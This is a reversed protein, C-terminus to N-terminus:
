LPEDHDSAAALKGALPSRAAGVQNGKEALRKWEKKASASFVGAKMYFQAFIGLVLLLCGAYKIPRGPDVAVQLVSQFQGTRQGTQPDQQPSYRMQYFTYGRHSLPHNMSITCPQAKIDESADSLGVNSVFKTAQETGPEFGVEFKDLKIEFGLPMRDVDYAIEFLRDGFPVPKFSPGDPSESRQIWIERTVDGVTMELLSAPVAEDMQNKPLYAPEFIQKEVGSPIYDEVRFSITMPMGVGGGFADITQGRSVPGAGRLETKSDKGRGFVRYYLSRDPAALVEIQGFRGNSRPDLVPPVMFHISVLPVPPTAGPDRSNPMVNPVMPLWAMAFHQIEPGSGKRVQFMGVPIVTEGLFRSLGGEAAPFDALKEVKVTLDSEPLPVSKGEQGELALDFVRTVGARDPYRIRALGRPGANMPPKLFDDILEPRSAYSFVVVAPGASKALRYFRRDLKFWQDDESEMAERARSMGPAKFLLRIRAMPDGTSPDAEHLVAPASAPLHRKVVLKFPDGPASLTEGTKSAAPLRGGSLWHLALDGMGQLHAQDDGWPFQGPKFHLVFSREAEQTHSDLERVRIVPDNRRLLDSRSQGELIAMMGEDATKFSWYAGFILVLLGAHTMVFGTQRKRWPFRILAACLINTALFALLLPFWASQYVLDQAASTGYRSELWTAFALSAALSSLSIVALKLSAFFRYLADIAGMVHKM